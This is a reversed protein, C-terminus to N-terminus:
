ERFATLPEKILNGERFSQISLCAIDISPHERLILDAM